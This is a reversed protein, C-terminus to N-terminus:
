DGDTSAPPTKTRRFRASTNTTAARTTKTRLTIRSRLRTTPTDNPCAIRMGPAPKTTKRRFGVPRSPDIAKTTPPTARIAIPRAIPIWVRLRSRAITSAAVSVGALRAPLDRM